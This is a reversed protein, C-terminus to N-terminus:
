VAGVSLQTASAEARWIGCHPPLRLASMSESRLVEPMAQPGPAILLPVHAPADSRSTSLAAPSSTSEGSLWPTKWM